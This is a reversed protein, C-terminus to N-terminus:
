GLLQLAKLFLYHEERGWASANMEKEMDAGGGGKNEKAQMQILWRSDKEGATSSAASCGKDESIVLQDVEGAGRSCPGPSGPGAGAAASDAACTSSAVALLSCAGGVPGGGSHHTSRM